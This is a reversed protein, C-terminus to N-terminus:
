QVLVLRQSMVVEGAAFRALYVGSAMSAGRHDRGDWVVSHEGATMRRSLLRRVLEGKINFIALEVRGDEKLSFELSTEPNFPNPTAPKLLTATVAGSRMRSDGTEDGSDAAAKTSMGLARAVFVPSMAFGYDPHVRSWDEGDASMWGPYGSTAATYGIAPGGGLGESETLAGSPIGFIVYLGDSACAVPETFAVESWGLTEGSVGEAVVLADALSVPYEATGSQVLVAPFVVTADNNYWKIGSIAMDDAVPVWVAICSNEEAVAIGVTGLIEIAGLDEAAESRGSVLVSLGVIMVGMLGLTKKNISM